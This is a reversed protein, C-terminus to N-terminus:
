SRPPPSCRTSRRVVRFSAASVRAAKLGLRNFPAGTMKGAHEADNFMARLAPVSWVRTGDDLWELAVACDIRRLPRDGYREVFASTRERNHAVTEPSRGRGKGYVASSTWPNSGALSADGSVEDGGGV